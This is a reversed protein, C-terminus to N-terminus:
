RSHRPREANVYKVDFASLRVIWTRELDEYDAVYCLDGEVMGRQKMEEKMMWWVPYVTQQVKVKKWGLWVFIPKVKATESM